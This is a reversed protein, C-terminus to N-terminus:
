TRVFESNVPAFYKLLPPLVTATTAVGLVAVFSFMLGLETSEFGFEEM